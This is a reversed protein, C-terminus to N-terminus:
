HRMTIDDVHSQVKGNPMSGDYNDGADDNKIPSFYRGV